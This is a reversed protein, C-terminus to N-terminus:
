EAASAKRAEAYMPMIEGRMYDVTRLSAEKPLNGFAVRCLMYNVGAAEVHARLKDRVTALSGVLCVGAADAAEFDEPFHATPPINHKRWLLLLNDVWQKYAPRALERAEADSDAIIMHRGIGMMPQTQASKGAEQWLARYRDTVRRVVAAPGNGIVNIGRSAVWDLSEPRGLGYWLPPLPKQYPRLEIPVNDFKFHKGRHSLVDSAFGKLLIETVERFIEPSDDPKVGYFGLEIPSIGRGIGVDLRGKCLHDLMCLEDLLRLPHYLSLTFVLAGLRLTKTRQAAAALFVSPSPALGLPTGHHEALHYSYFGADDCAELIQLRTEYQASTDEGSRDMHDFLGFRM